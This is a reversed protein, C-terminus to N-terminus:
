KAKRKLRATLFDRLVIAHNHEEDRAGYILTVHKKAAVGLLKKMADTNEALEKRYRKKFETWREPDHHFWQRLETTPAVDKAWEDIPLSKKSIGRPWLRDVLVRHGGGDKDIDYARTVSIRPTRKAM